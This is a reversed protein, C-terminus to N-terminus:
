TEINKHMNVHPCFEDYYETGTQVYGLKAYFDKVRTQASLVIEKGGSNRIESEAAEMIKRGLAMGRFEKLVAVRGIHYIEKNLDDHFYRCTAAPKNQIYIIIHFAKNDIEDFENKFGQEDVFVSQRIMKADNCLLNFKKYNM